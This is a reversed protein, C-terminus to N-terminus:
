NSVKEPVPLRKGNGNAHGNTGNADSRVTLERHVQRLILELKAYQQDMLQGFESQMVKRMCYAESLWGLMVPRFKSVCEDATM